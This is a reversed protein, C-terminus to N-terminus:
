NRIVLDKTDFADHDCNNFKKMLNAQHLLKKIEERKKRQFFGFHILALLMLVFIFLGSAASIALIWLQLKLRQRMKRFRIILDISDFYFDNSRNIVADIIQAKAEISLDIAKFHSGFVSEITSINLASHLNFIGVHYGAKFPGIRCYFNECHVNECNLKLLQDNFEFISESENSTHRKDRFAKLADNQLRSVEPFGFTVGPEGIVVDAGPVIPLNTLNYDCRIAINGLNDVASYNEKHIQFVSSFLYYDFIRRNKVEYFIPSSKEKVIQVATNYLIKLHATEEIKSDNTLDSTTLLKAKFTIQTAKNTQKLDFPVVFLVNEAEFPNGLDCSVVVKEENELDIECHTQLRTVALYPKVELVLKALHANEGFNSVNMYLKVDSQLGDIVSTVVENESITKLEVTMNSVCKQGNKCGSEFNIESSVTKSEEVIPCNGCFTTRNRKAINYTMEFKIPTLKDVIDNRVFIPISPSCITENVRIDVYTEMNSFRKGPRLAFVRLNENGIGKLVTDMELQVFLKEEERIYKGQLRFCYSISFCSDTKCLEPKLVSSQNIIIQAKIEAFPQSRLIVANESLYSGILIDPYHNRDIDSVTLSIGFGKLDVSRFDSASIRQAFKENLGNKSGHYIYVAGKNDDEYPAGVAIDTFGDLNIDGLVCLSSGFRALPKNLGSLIQPEEFGQKKNVCVKVYFNENSVYVYIRGRDGQQGDNVKTVPSHFPAGVILDDRSDGNLDTAIVSSGFYEGFQTGRLVRVVTMSNEGAHAKMSFIYVSGRYFSDKPAGAVVEEVNDDNFFGSTVSYGLYSDTAVKLHYQIMEPNRVKKFGDIFYTVVAGRWQYFGPSGLILKKADRSFANSFGAM